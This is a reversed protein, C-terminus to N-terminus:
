QAPGLIRDMTATLWREYEEVSRGGTGTLLAFTEANMSVWLTDLEDDDLPRGAVLEAGTAINARRRLELARQVEALRPESSAAEAIARRLGWSRQNIGSILRVAAAVRDERRGRGMEAFEPRESLPVPAVDGVVGVDIAETLLETKSGVAAYVTEVAVGARRAVDRVSTGSWGRESFLETAAALVDARTRAAQEERRPSRYVRRATPPAAAPETM